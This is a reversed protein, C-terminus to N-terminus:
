RFFVIREFMPDVHIVDFNWSDRKVKMYIVINVRRINYLISNMSWHKTHMEQILILRTEDLLKPSLVEVGISLPGRSQANMKHAEHLALRRWQRAHPYAPPYSMQMNWYQALQEFNLVVVKIM